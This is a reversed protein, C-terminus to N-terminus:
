REELHNWSLNLCVRLNVISLRRERGVGEMTARRRREGHLIGVWAQLLLIQQLGFVDAHKCAQGRSFPMHNKGGEAAAEGEEENERIHAWFSGGRAGV